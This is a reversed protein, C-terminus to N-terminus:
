KLENAKPKNWVSVGTSLAGIDPHYPDFPDGEVDETVGSGHGAHACPSGTQLSFDGSGPDALLPDAEISHADPSDGVDDTFAQWATLDAYDVGGLTAIKACAHFCNRDSKILHHVGADSYFVRGTITDFICNRM